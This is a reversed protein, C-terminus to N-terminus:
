VSHICINTICICEKGWAFITLLVIRTHRKKDVSPDSSSVTKSYSDRTISPVRATCCTASSNWKSGLAKPIYDYTLVDTLDLVDDTQVSIFYSCYVIILTSRLFKLLLHLSGKENLFNNSVASTLTRAFICRRSIITIESPLRLNWLYTSCDRKMFNSIL